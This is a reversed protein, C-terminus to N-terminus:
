SWLNAVAVCAAEVPLQYMRDTFCCGGGGGGGGRGWLAAVQLPWSRELRQKQQWGSHQLGTARVLKGGVHQQGAPGVM